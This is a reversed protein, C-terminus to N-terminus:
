LECQSNVHTIPPKESTEMSKKKAPLQMAWHRWQGPPRGETLQLFTSLTAENYNSTLVLMWLLLTVFLDQLTGEEDDRDPRSLWEDKLHEPVPREQAKPWTGHFCVFCVVCIMEYIQNTTEVWRFFILWIPFRGWTPIFIFFIQFWWRTFGQSRFICLIICCGPVQIVQIAGNMQFTEWWCFIDSFFMHHYSLRSIWVVFIQTRLIYVHM